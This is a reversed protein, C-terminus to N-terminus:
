CVCCVCCCVQTTARHARHRTSHAKTNGLGHIALLVGEAQQELPLRRPRHGLVPQVGVAVAAVADECHVYLLPGSQRGEGGTRGGEEDERM